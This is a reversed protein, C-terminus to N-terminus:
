YSIHHPFYFPIPERLILIKSVVSRSPSCVGPIANFGKSLNFIACANSSNPTSIMSAPNGEDDFLSASATLNIFFFVLVALIAASVLANFLSISMASDVSASM